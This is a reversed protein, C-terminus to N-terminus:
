QSDQPQPASPDAAQAAAYSRTKTIYVISFIISILGGLYGGLHIGWTTMFNRPRWLNEKKMEIFDQNLFTLQDLYGLVAFIAAFTITILLIKPLLLALQKYSLQPRNKRPNNAILIAAGLLLGASWTAQMGVKAAEIHLKIPDPPTQPGLILNVGKFYYFYEWSIASTLQDNLAGYVLAVFVCFFLFSYERWRTAQAGRKKLDILALILFIFGGVAARLQWSISPM